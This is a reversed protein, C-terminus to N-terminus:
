MQNHGNRLMKQFNRNMCFSLSAQNTLPTQPYMSHNSIYFCHTWLHKGSVDGSKCFWVHLELYLSGILLRVMRGTTTAEQQKVFSMLHAPLGETYGLVCACVSSLPHPWLWWLSQIELADEISTPASLLQGSAIPDSLVSALVLDSCTSSYVSRVTGAALSVFEYNPNLINRASSM